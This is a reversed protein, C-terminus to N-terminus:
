TLLSAASAPFLWRQLDNLLQALVLNVM